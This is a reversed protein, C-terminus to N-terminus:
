RAARGTTDVILDARDRTGDGAFFREEEAM